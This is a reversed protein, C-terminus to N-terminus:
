YTVGDISVPTDSDLHQVRGLSKYSHDLSNIKGSKAKAIDEREVGFYHYIKRVQANSDYINLLDDQSTVGGHIIDSPSAAAAPTPPLMITAFQLMVILVAGVASFTRTVKEQRLRRAYFALQSAASPSLSLQSVIRRFM